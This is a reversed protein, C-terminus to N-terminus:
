GVLAVVAGVLAEGGQGEQRATRLTQLWPWGPGEEEEETKMWAEPTITTERLLCWEHMQPNVYMYRREASYIQLQQLDGEELM